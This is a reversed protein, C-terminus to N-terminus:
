LRFVGLISRDKLVTGFTPRHDLGVFRFAWQGRGYALMRGVIAGFCVLFLLVSLLYANAPREDADGAEEQPVALYGQNAGQVPSLPHPTTLAASVDLETSLLCLFTGLCYVMVVALLSTGRAYRWLRLRRVVETNYVPYSLSCEPCSRPLGRSRLPPWLSM